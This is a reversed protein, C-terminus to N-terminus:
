DHEHGVGALELSPHRALHGRAILSNSSTSSPSRIMTPNDPPFSLQASICMRSTRRRTACRDVEREHRHVHIGPVCVVLVLLDGARALCAAPLIPDLVRLDALDHVVHEVGVGRRAREARLESATHQIAHRRLDPGALNRETMVGVVEHLGQEEVQEEGAAQLGHRGPQHRVSRRWTTM